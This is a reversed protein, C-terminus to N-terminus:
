YFRVSSIISDVDSQTASGVILDHPTDDLDYIVIHSETVNTNGVQGEGVIDFGDYPADFIYIATPTNVLSALTAAKIALLADQAAGNGSVFQSSNPTTSLVAKLWDFDSGVNGAGFVSNVANVDGETQAELRVSSAISAYPSRDLLTVLQGGAFKLETAAGDATRIVDPTTNWPAAFSVEYYSFRESSAQSAPALSLRQPTLNIAFQPSAAPEKPSSQNANMRIRLFLVLGVLILIGVVILTVAASGKRRSDRNM